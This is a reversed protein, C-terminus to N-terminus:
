KNIEKRRKVRSRRRGVCQLHAPYQQLQDCEIVCVCVRYSEERLAIPWDCLGRSSLVCFECSASMWARPPNSGAIGALFPGCVSAKSRASM